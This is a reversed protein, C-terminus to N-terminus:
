KEDDTLVSGVASGIVAGILTGVPGGFAGITAGLVLGGVALNEETEPEPPRLPRCRECCCNVSCCM